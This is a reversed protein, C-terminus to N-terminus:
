SVPNVWINSSTGEVVALLRAPLLCSPTRDGSPSDYVGALVEAVLVNLRPESLRWLMLRSAGMTGESEVEEMDLVVICFRGTWGGASSSCVGRALGAVM